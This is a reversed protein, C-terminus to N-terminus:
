FTIVSSSNFFLCTLTSSRAFLTTSLKPKFPLSRLTTAPKFLPSLNLRAEIVFTSNCSLPCLLLLLM